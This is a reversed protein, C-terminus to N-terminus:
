LGCEKQDAGIITFDPQVQNKLICLTSMEYESLWYSKESKVPLGYIASKQHQVLGFPPTCRIISINGVLFNIILIRKIEKGRETGKDEKSRQTQIHVITRDRVEQRTM